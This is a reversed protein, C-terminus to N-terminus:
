PNRRNAVAFKEKVEEYHVFLDADCNNLIGKLTLLGMVDINADLQYETEYNKMPFICNRPLGLVKSVNAVCKEVKPSYFANAINNKTTECISDIKTLIVVQPIELGNMVTQMEKINGTVEPSLDQMADVITADQVLAVCHIKEDLAPYKNFGPMDASLNGSPDFPFKDAINGELIYRMNEKTMLHDQELGRIDCVRFKLPMPPKRSTSMIPYRTFKTTLSHEASGSRAVNFIKGRFISNFTNFVSSKGAGVGGLLLINVKPFQVEDTLLDGLPEYKEVEEKLEALTEFINNWNVTKRWPTEYLTDMDKLSRGGTAFTLPSVPTVVPASPKVSTQAPVTTAPPNASQTVVTTPIAPTGSPQSSVTTVAVTNVIPQTSVTPSSSTPVGPQTSAAKSRTPTVIPQTSVATAVATNVVPQTAAATSPSAQVNPQTSAVSPTAPTVTTQASVSTQAASAM